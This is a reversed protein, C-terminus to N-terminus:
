VKTCTDKYSQTFRKIKQLRFRVLRQQLTLWPWFIRCIGYWGVHWDHKAWHTPVVIKIIQHHAPHSANPTSSKPRMPVECIPNRFFKARFVNSPSNYEHLPLDTPTRQNTWFIVTPGFFSWYITLKSKPKPTTIKKSGSQANNNSTNLPKLCKEGTPM